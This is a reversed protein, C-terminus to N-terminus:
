KRYAEQMAFFEKRIAFLVGRGRPGRDWVHTLFIYKGGDHLEYAGDCMPAVAPVRFIRSAIERGHADGHMDFSVDYGRLTEFLDTTHGFSSACVLRWYDHLFQEYTMVPTMM